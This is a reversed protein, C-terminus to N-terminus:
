PEARVVPMGSSEASRQAAATARRTLAEADYGHDASQAFGVGIAPLVTDELAALDDILGQRVHNGSAACEESSPHHVVIAVTTPDLAGAPCHIPLHRHVADKWHSEVLEAADPGFAAAIEDLGSIRIAVIAMPVGARESRGTIDDIVATFIEPPLLSSRAPARDASDSGTMASSSTSVVRLVSTSVVAVITLGITVLSTMGTGFWEEFLVSEPGTLLFVVTRAVYYLAATGLAFTLGWAAFVTRLAGRLTEFAGAAAFLAIGALMVPAGAWDGVDRQLAAAAFALVAGGAVAAFPVRGLRGNYVRCGLWMLGMQAVFGANGIAVAIWLGRDIAWALYCFTVLVGAVFAAAWYRGSASERRVVTEFLFVVASAIVVAATLFTTTFLDLAIM